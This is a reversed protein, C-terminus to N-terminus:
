HTGCVDVALVALARAALVVEAIPVSEDPAHALAADGPGYHVTPIGGMGNLLRLDSGYPGGWTGQATGGVATHARGVRDLLDSSAPLRGPAFQGGWWQVTVPHECLWPDDACARAVAEELEARAAEVPEDLAVGLRGEAVLLDPVTSAWDGADVRGISLPYAIPWRRMLPDVEANRRQELRMLAHWVPLFMEVASVGETRRSAHSARGRVRLRFTLAGANAPVLDLGTPEPVVCADARWGRRLMGYTGLGGDEEGPVCALLLDGRLPVGARRVARVATLAAVLGAKMDCAGRGHLVDGDIHGSFPDDTSWADPDGPPVVDVHGNLMLTRGSGRGDGALRAVLGWAETREVEVGPFDPEALLEELPLRWHDTDLGDVALEAALRGQIEHEADSGSVSPTAVLDALLGVMETGGADVETLVRSTWDTAATM